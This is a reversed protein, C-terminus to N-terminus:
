VATKIPYSDSVPPFRLPDIARALTKEIPLPEGSIQSALIEGALPSWVLGRSALGTLAYLGPEALAGILPMRDPTVARFSVRNLVAHASRQYDPVLTELRVLNAEQAALNPTPDSELDYSAGVCVRGEVPPIVYGDQCLVTEPASLDAASVLTVQGRTRQLALDALPQLDAGSALIVLDAVAISAGNADRAQWAEACPHLSAVSLGVRLTLRTGCAALNAACVSPPVAWGAHPFCLDDASTHVFEPPLALDSCLRHHYAAETAARQVVGCPSWRPQGPHRPWTQCAYLFAARTLRANLNDDLSLTPRVIGAPNGSAGQAIQAHRDIVTVQWGRRALAYAASSGALGAGIILAHGPPYTPRTNRTRAAILQGRLMERKAGFGPAKELRFGADQLALRVPSAVCWTALTAHAAALRAIQRLLTPSWLDPNKAPAFGDLYFANVEAVVQPLTANADGFLLTLRLRGDALDLRHFGPTLPPWRAILESSLAAFEPHQAHLQTLDAATFPHKEAALYHLQPCAEPDALWAAWTALLNLGSGFGTELIVFRERGRWAEPLGNGRLFVHQAQGIGGDTSYYIDDFAAAYPTNGRWDLHAPTIAAYTL